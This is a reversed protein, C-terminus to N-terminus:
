SHSPRPRPTGKETQLPAAHAVVLALAVLALSLQPLARARAAPASVQPAAAVLLAAREVQLTRGQIRGADGFAPQAHLALAAWVAAYGLLAAALIVSGLYPFRTSM